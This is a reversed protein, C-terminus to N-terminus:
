KSNTLDEKLETLVDSTQAILQLAVGTLNSETKKRKSVKDNAQTIQSQEIKFLEFWSQLSVLIEQETEDLYKKAAPDVEPLELTNLKMLLQVMTLRTLYDFLKSALLSKKDQGYVYQRFPNNSPKLHQLVELIDKYSALPYANGPLAIKHEWIRLIIDVAKKEADEREQQTSGNEAQHILEAVHHSMWRGLTDFSDEFELERVLYKGLEL